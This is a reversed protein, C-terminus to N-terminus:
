FRTGVIVGLGFGVLLTGWARPSRLWSSQPENLIAVHDPTIRTTQGTIVATAMESDIAIVRFRAVLADRRRPDVAIGVQRPRIWNATGRRFAITTDDVVRSIEFRVGGVQARAVAGSGGLLLLAVVAARLTM